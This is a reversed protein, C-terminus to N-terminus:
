FKIGLELALMDAKIVMKKDMRVSQSVVNSLGRTYSFGGYVRTNMGLQFEMGSAFFLSTQIFKFNEVYSNTERQPKEHLNFELIPGLQFYVRKDLGIEATLLKVTAPVQLYQLSYVETTERNTPRNLATLGVRKSAFLAGTSFYYNSSMAIPLDITLGGSFRMGTKFSSFRLTDSETDFRNTSLSPAAKLGMRIQSYAGSSLTLGLILLFIRQIKMSSTYNLQTPENSPLAM